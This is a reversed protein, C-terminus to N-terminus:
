ARRGHRSPRASRVHAPLPRRCRKQQQRRDPNRRRLPRHCHPQHGRDGIRRRPQGIEKGGSRRVGRRGPHAGLSTYRLQAPKAPHRRALVARDVHRDDAHVAHHGGARVLPAPRRLRAGRGSTRGAGQALGCDSTEARWAPPLHVLLAFLSSGVGYYVPEISTVADPWVGCTIAVSGPTIHIKERIASGNVTPGRCSWFSNPTRGHANGSSARCARSVATTSCTIFSSRHAM